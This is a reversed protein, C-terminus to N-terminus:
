TMHLRECMVGSGRRYRYRTSISCSRFLENRSAAKIRQPKCSDETQEATWPVLANRRLARANANAACYFRTSTHHGPIFM